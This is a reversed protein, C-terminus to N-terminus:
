QPENAERYFTRAAAIAVRAITQTRVNPEHTRFTCGTDGVWVKQDSIPKSSILRSVSAAFIKEALETELPSLYTPTPTPEANTNM